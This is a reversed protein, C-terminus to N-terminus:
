LNNNIIQEVCSSLDDFFNNLDFCNIISTTNIESPSKNLIKNWSDLGKGTKVLYKYKCGAAHAAEIDKISDGIFATKNLDINHNIKIKDIMGSLPKRCNCNQEPTHPCYYITNIINTNFRLKISNLLKTNIKLFTELSYLGRNIGSQNTAIFVRINNKYLNYIADLSKNILVFEEPSKIYNDSDHNIVGDRDLIVTNISM